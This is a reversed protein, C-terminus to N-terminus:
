FKVPKIFSYQDQPRTVQKKESSKKEGQNNKSAKRYKKVSTEINDSINEFIDITYDLPTAL